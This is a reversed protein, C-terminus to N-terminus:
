NENEEEWESEPGEHTNLAKCDLCRTHGLNSLPGRWEMPGGCIGCRVDYREEFIGM